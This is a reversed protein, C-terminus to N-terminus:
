STYFMTFDHFICPKQMKSTCVSIIYPKGDFTMIGQFFDFNDADPHLFHIKAESLCFPIEALPLRIGGGHWKGYAEKLTWIRSFTTDEDDSALIEKQEDTTCVYKLMRAHFHRPPEIDIGVPQNSITCVAFGQSHALNMHLFPHILQPKGQEDRSLQVHSIGYFERLVASLMDLAYFHETRHRCGRPIQNVYPINTVFVRLFFLKDNSTVSLQTTVM